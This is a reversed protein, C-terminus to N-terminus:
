RQNARPWRANLPRSHTQRSRAEGHAGMSRALLDFEIEGLDTSPGGPGLTKFVLDQPSLAFSQQDSWEGSDTAFCRASLRSATVSPPRVESTAEAWRRHHLLRRGFRSTSGFGAIRGRRADGDKHGSCRTSPMCESFSRGFRRTVATPSWSRTTKSHRQCIRAVWASNMPIADDATQYRTRVARRVHLDFRPLTRAALALNKGRQRGLEAILADLFAKADARVAFRVARTNGITQADIDVQAVEQREANGWYPSKGWWDTEGLRSGLVLVRDAARRAETVHAVFIMSLAHSDREDIAGRGAWSTTVPAELLAALKALQQTAGASIVGSGAHVLPLRAEDLWRAIERVQDAPPELPLTPRYSTPPRVADSTFECVGNLISEPVDLHM